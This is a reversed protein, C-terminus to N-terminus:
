KVPGVKYQLCGWQRFLRTFQQELSIQDQSNEVQDHEKNAPEQVALLKDVWDPTVWDGRVALRKLQLRRSTTIHVFHADPFANHLQERNKKQSIAQAMVVHPYQNLYHQTHSIVETFFHDRMPQTFPQKNQICQRMEDTLHIDADYFYFDYTRALWESVYNKGVGPPGYLIILM